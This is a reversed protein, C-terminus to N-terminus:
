ANDIIQSYEEYKDRMLKVISKRFDNGRITVEHYPTQVKIWYDNECDTIVGKIEKKTENLSMLEELREITM